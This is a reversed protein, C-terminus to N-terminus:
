AAQAAIPAGFILNLMLQEILKRDMKRGIDKCAMMHSLTKLSDDSQKFDCLERFIQGQNNHAVICLPDVGSADKLLDLSGGYIMAARQLANENGRCGECHYTMALNFLIVGGYVRFSMERDHPSDNEPLLYAQDFVFGTVGHLGPVTETCEQFMFEDSEYPSDPHSKVARGALQIAARFRQLAEPLMGHKLYAVGQNNLKCAYQMLDHSSSTGAMMTPCSPSSAQQIMTDTASGTGQFKHHNSAKHQRWEPDEDEDRDRKPAMTDILHSRSFHCSAAM